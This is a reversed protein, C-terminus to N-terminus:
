EALGVIIAITKPEPNIWIDNGYRLMAPKQITTPVELTTQSGWHMVITKDAKLSVTYAPAEGGMRRIARSLLKKARLYAFRAPHLTDGGLVFGNQFLGDLVETRM